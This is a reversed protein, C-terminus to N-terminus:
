GYHEKHKRRVLIYIILVFLFTLSIILGTYFYVPRYLFEITHKGAPVYITRFLIDGYHLTVNKGDIRAKWGPYNASLQMLWGPMDTNIEARTYVPSSQIVDVKYVTDQKECNSELPSVGEIAIVKQIMGSILQNKVIQASDRMDNAPIACSFWRFRSQEDKIPNIVIPTATNESIVTGIGWFGNNESKQTSIEPFVSERGNIM